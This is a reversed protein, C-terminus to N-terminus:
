EIKVKVAGEVPIRLTLVGDEYRGIVEADKAVKVPLKVHREVKRPRQTLYEVGQKKSERSASIVLTDQGVVRVNIDEKKFGALDAKVTLYGGEEYLDVPPYVEEYFERTLDSVQKALEKKVLDVM